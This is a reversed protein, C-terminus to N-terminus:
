EEMHKSTLKLGKLKTTPLRCFYRLRKRERRSTKQDEEELWWGDGDKGEPGCLLCTSLVYYGQEHNGRLNISERSEHDTHSHWAV